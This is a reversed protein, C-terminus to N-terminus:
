SLPVMGVSNPLNFPNSSRPRPLDKSSGRVVYLINRIWISYQMRSINNDKPEMILRKNKAPFSREPVMGASNPLKVFSSNNYKNVVLEGAM